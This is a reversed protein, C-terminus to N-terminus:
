APFFDPSRYGTMRIPKRINLATPVWPGAHPRLYHQVTDSVSAQGSKFATVRWTLTAGNITPTAQYNTTVSTSSTPLIGGVPVGATNTSAILEWLVSDPSGSVSASLPVREFPDFTGFVGAEVTISGSTIIRAETLRSSVSVGSALRAATLVSGRQDGFIGVDTLTSYAM